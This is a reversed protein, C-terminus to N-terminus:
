QKDETSTGPKFLDSIDINPETGFTTSWIDKEEQTLEQKKGFESNAQLAHKITKSVFEEAFKSSMFGEQETLKDQELKRTFMEGWILDKGLNQMIEQNEFPTVEGTAPNTTFLQVINKSDDPFQIDISIGSAPVLHKHQERNKIVEQIEEESLGKVDVTRFWMEMCIALAVVKGDLNLNDKLVKSSEGIFARIADAIANKHQMNEPFEMVMLGTNDDLLMHVVVPLFALGEPLVGSETGLAAKTYSELYFKTVEEKFHEEGGYYYGKPSSRFKLIAMQKSM